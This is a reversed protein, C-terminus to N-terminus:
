LMDKIISGGKMIVLLTEPRQLSAIDALPDGDVVIIDAVKGVAVSGLDREVGLLEAARSTGAEIAEMPSLGHEVLLELEKLNNGHHNFPTGSDTGMAIKVGAERAMEFSKVQADKVMQTKRVIFEPVGAKTGSWMINYVVSFTPILFIQDKLIMEVTEKDLFFGHEISDVGARIANRIGENGQAHAATKRGAKRGEEVGARLEEESLQPSGPQVGPTIIGGTAMLKIIDAGAKIQERAAKRVEDPGDAERGMPWGHGGTMCIVKGSCLMRPGEVIGSSIADRLILDIHDRGAMDRVTTVAAMLTSKAFACAKFATLFPSERRIQGMPDPSADNFLHVHCDIFGPLLTKGSLDYFGHDPYGSLDLQPSIKVIRGDEVVVSSKPIVNGGGDIIRANHFVVKM